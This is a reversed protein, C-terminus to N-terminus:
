IFFFFNSCKTADLNILTLKNGKITFSLLGVRLRERDEIVLTVLIARSLVPKLAFSAMAGDTLDTM